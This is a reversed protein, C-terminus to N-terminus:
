FSAIWNRLLHLGAEGSNEPHFQTASLPGNEVAAIFREGHHAYTVRPSAFAGYAELTWETAAHSHAFHFQEGEIGDFLASDPAAEVPSWGSHPLSPADLEAVVGPWQALGETDVEGAIAGDFLIQMGVGVGLVPRGGALRREILEDGRVARLQEMLAAFDSDGIVVLGDANAVLDRDHTLLANAGADTLADVVSSADGSGIDLVAVKPRSNETV